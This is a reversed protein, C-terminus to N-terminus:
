AMLKGDELSGSPPRLKAWDVTPDPDNEGSARLLTARSVSILTRTWSRAGAARDTVGTEREIEESLADIWGAVALVGGDVDKM